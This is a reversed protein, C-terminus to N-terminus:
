LKSSLLELVRSCQKKYEFTDGELRNFRICYLAAINIKCIKIEFSVKTSRTVSQISPDGEPTFDTDVASARDSFTTSISTRTSDYYINNGYSSSLSQQNSNPPTSISTSTMNSSSKRVVRTPPTNMDVSTIVIIAGRKEYYTLISERQMIMLTNLLLERIKHPPKTSTTSASFIGKVSVKEIKDDIQGTVNRRKPEQNEYDFNDSITVPSSQSPRRAEVFSQIPQIIASRISIRSKSKEASMSIKPNENSVDRESHSRAKEGTFKDEPHKTKRGLKAFFDLVKKKFSNNKDTESNMLIEESLPSTEKTDERSKKSRITMASLRSKLTKQPEGSEENSLKPKSDNSSSLKSSVRKFFKSTNKKQELALSKSRRLNAPDSSPEELTKTSSLTQRRAPAVTSPISEISHVSPRKERLQKTQKRLKEQVLYYISVVPDMPIQDPFQTKSSAMLRQLIMDNTGLDFGKMREIAEMNFPPALPERLPMFNSVQINSLWPHHIIEGLTAREAPNVVLMRSILHKLESSLHHPLDFMGAKIKSHLEPLNSDDFPVKGCTLVYLIVGLSWIDVEPGVYKRASLLEPAAFYLSGCFTSLLKDKSYLNALGFDILQIYGKNNILINEIKLDRHVVNNRHCYDVASLIQAMLTQAFKEKLKGHSIIFDLVQTGEVLDMFLYYHSNTIAIERLSVIYPHDLLLTLAMERIMRQDDMEEQSKYSHAPIDSMYSGIVLSDPGEIAVPRRVIKCAYQKGSTHYAVKVKGMSGQGITKGMNYPGVTRLARAKEKREKSM